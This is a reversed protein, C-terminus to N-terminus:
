VQPGRIFQNPADSQSEFKIDPNTRCLDKSEQMSREIGARRRRRRKGKKRREWSRQPRQHAGVAQVPVNGIFVYMCIPFISKHMERECILTCLLPSGLRTSDVKM